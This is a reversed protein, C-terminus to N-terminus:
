VQELDARRGSKLAILEEYMGELQKVSDSISFRAHVRRKASAGYAAILGPDQVLWDIASALAEPNASPVLVGTEKNTIIEPIPGVSTAICAKGAACAELLAVGFGEFLSPFVFVDAAELLAPVDDRRGLFRVRDLVGMREATSKLEQELFGVGAILLVAGPDDVMSMAEILYRQGKQPVLRGVNLLVLQDDRIGM